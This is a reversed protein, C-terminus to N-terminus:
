NEARFKTELLHSLNNNITNINPITIVKFAKVTVTETKRRENKKHEYNEKEM